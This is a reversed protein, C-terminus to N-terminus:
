PDLDTGVAAPLPMPVGLRMGGGDCRRQREARNGVALEGRLNAQFRQVDGEAFDLGGVTAPRDIVSM